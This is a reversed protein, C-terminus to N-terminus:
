IKQKWPRIDVGLHEGILIDPPVGKKFIGEVRLFNVEFYKLVEEEGVGDKTKKLSYVLLKFLDFNKQSEVLARDIVRIFYFGLCLSEAKDRIKQFTEITECQSLIDLNRGKAALIDLFSFLELRGGFKSNMRKAGKAIIKIKGYDSTFFTIMKATEGFERSGIVIGKTKYLAM